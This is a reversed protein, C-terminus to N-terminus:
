ISLPKDFNSEVKRKIQDIQLKTDAIFFHKKKRSIEFEIRKATKSRVNHTEPM